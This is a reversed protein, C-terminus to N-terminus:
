GRRPSRSHEDRAVGPPSGSGGVRSVSASLRQACRRDSPIRASRARGGRADVGRPAGRRAARVPVTRVQGDPGQIVAAELQDDGILEVIRSSTALAVRDNAAIREILYHSMTASLESRRVVLHVRRAYETLSIAAQGASNGGGVVIVEGGRCNVADLYTAAYFLGFAEFRGAGAVELRRYRAGTAIIVARATLETGDDLGIVHTAGPGPRLIRAAHPLLFEAGFKVAQLLARQTLEAGSVGAPFGLYNEIRPSTGAQGGPALAEVTGAALGDTAAYVSAALGAPGSGVIVVDYPETRPRAGGVGLASALEADTPRIMPHARPRLVVPTQELTANAHLLRDRARPDHVPDGVAHPIGNRRLFRRLAQTEQSEYRGIIEVGGGDRILRSRRMLLAHLILESLEPEDEVVERLRAAPVELLQGDQRVVATAFAIGGSLLGLDGVFEGRGHVALTRQEGDREGIVAVLGDIVVFFDYDADGVEFLTEGEHVARARGYPRLAEFRRGSLVPSADVQKPRDAARDLEESTPM